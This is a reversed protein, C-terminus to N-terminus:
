FITAISASAWEIVRAPLLGLYFVAIASAILAVRAVLPVSALGAPRDAPTMYMMVVIRLYFFVSVVSSLVGVIALWNEGARVAASFVYWKAIFGALPPFGGLSLLFLTMLAALGPRENWLGAFDSIKDFSREPSELVAV